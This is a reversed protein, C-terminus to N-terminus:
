VGVVKVFLFKCVELNFFVIKVLGYLYFGEMFEKM